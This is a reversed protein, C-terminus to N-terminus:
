PIASSNTVPLPRSSSAARSGEEGGGGFYHHAELLDREEVLEGGRLDCLTLALRALSLFRSGQEPERQELAKWLQSVNSKWSLAEFVEGEGLRANVRGQRALMRARAEHVRGSSSEWSTSAGSPRSPGIALCLDFPYRLLRRWREEYRRAQTPRCTCALRESGKAGCACAPSWAFVLPDAPVAVRRPGVRAQIRGSRMPELLAPFLTPERECVQDVFLVGRHALLVEEVKALRRDKLLPPLGPCSGLAFFPRALCSDPALGALNRIARVEEAEGDTLPPLLSSLAHAFLDPRSGAPGPALVHHGGAASIELLRKVVEQGELRGWSWAPSAPATSEHGAKRGGASQGRLFAVADSLCRFGGGRETRAEELVESGEWPLLGSSYGGERLLYRLAAESGASRLAGDLGLAGCLLLGEVAASPVLGASGLVAIAVALDLQELPLGAVGPRLQVTFRRPPLRLRSSHLAAIVRERQESAGSGGGLIQLFPLRRSQACEVQVPIAQIGAVLAGQVRFYTM